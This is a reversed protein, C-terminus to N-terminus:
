PYIKRSRRTRRDKEDEKTAIDENQVVKNEHIRSEAYTAYTKKVRAPYSEWTKKKPEYGLNIFHSVDKSKFKPPWWCFGDDYWSVPVVQVWPDDDTGELLLFHHKAELIFDTLYEETSDPKADGHYLGILFVKRRKANTIIGLIPWFQGGSSKSIPLDDINVFIDVHDLASRALM